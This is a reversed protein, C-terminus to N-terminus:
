QAPTTKDRSFDLSLKEDAVSIEIVGSLYDSKIFPSDFTKPYEYGLYQGDVTPVAPAGANFVIEKAGESIGTYILEQYGPLVARHLTIPNQLIREIFIKFTQYEGLEGVEIITPTNVDPLVLITKDDNWSYCNDCLKVSPKDDWRYFNVQNGKAKSRAKEDYKQDWHVPRVAAFAIGKRVFIWGDKEIVEDWQNGFWIGVPEGVMDTMAPFWTPHAAFWRRAKQIILTQEYQVSQWVVETNFELANKDSSSSLGVPVIRAHPEGAVTMGHWRGSMSLHSHVAAPHDMQTGLTLTPTVYTYKVFRSQTDTILARETGLPRPWKNEEEGVGRSVYTFRGMAEKDLALRWVISPLEYDNIANWYNWPGLSFPAGMYTAILEATQIDRVGGVSRHHRTKPGGRIGSISLHAWDTWFLTLFDAVTAKLTQDTTYQYVLDVFGLSHKSYTPSGYELFFGRKAREAFYDQFFDTWAIFHDAAKLKQEIQQNDRGSGYREQTTVDPGYYGARGYYAGGGFGHNPYIRDKYEPENMFILSSLYSSAKNNLDHNESGHMWWTSQKALNIDNKDVTRLWLTELLKKEAEPSLRGPYEGIRSSFLFYMRIYMPTAFLSWTNYTSSLELTSILEQNTSGLDIGLHLKAFITVLDFEKINNIDITKTAAKNLAAMLRKHKNLQASKLRNSISKDTVGIRGSPSYFGIGDIWLVSKKAFDVQFELMAVNSWDFNPVQDFRSLPVDIKNWGSQLDSFNLSTKTQKSDVLTLTWNNGTSGELDQVKLFFELSYKKSIAWTEGWLGSSFGFKEASGALHPKFQFSFDGKVHDVHDLKLAELQYGAQRRKSLDNNIYQNNSALGFLRADEEWFDVEAGTAHIATQLGLIFIGFKCKHILNMKNGNINKLTMQNQLIRGVIM